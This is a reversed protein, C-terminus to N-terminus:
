CRKGDFTSLSSKKITQLYMRHIISRLAFSECEEQYQKGDLCSKCEEMKIHKSQSKSVGKINSKSHDCKFSYKKSRLCVFKDIWIKEPTEIKIKGILKKNKNSFNEHNKVLNSFDFM